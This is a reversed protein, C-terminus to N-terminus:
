RSLSATSKGDWWADIEATIDRVRDPYIEALNRSESPDNQMDFLEVAGLPDQPVILKWSEKIAWRYLLSREPRALDVADHTFLEGFITRSDESRGHRFAALRGWAHELSTRFWVRAIDYACPGPSTVLM